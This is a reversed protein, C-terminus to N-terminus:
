QFPVATPYGAGQILSKRHLKEGQLEAKTLLLLSMRDADKETTSDRHLSLTLSFRFRDVKNYKPFCHFKLHIRSSHRGLQSPLSDM